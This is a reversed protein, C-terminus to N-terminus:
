DRDLELLLSKAQIYNSESQDHGEQKTWKVNNQM